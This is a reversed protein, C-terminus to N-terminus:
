AREGRSRGPIGPKEFDIYLGIKIKREHWIVLDDVVADVAADLQAADVQVQELPGLHLAQVPNVLQAQRVKHEGPGVVGTQLM